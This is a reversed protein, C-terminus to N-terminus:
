SFLATSLNWDGDYTITLTTTTADPFTYVATLLKNDWNYTNVVSTTDDRHAETVQNNVITDVYFNRSQLLQLRFMSDVKSSSYTTETGPTVDNIRAWWSIHVPRQALLNFDEKSAYENHKHDKDAKDDIDKKIKEIEKKNENEKKVIDIKIDEVSELKKDLINSLWSIDDIEHGHWLDSKKNIKENLKDINDLIFSSIKNLQWQIERKDKFTLNEKHSHTELKSKLTDFYTNLEEIIEWRIEEEVQQEIYWIVEDRLKELWQEAFMNQITQLLWWLMDTESFNKNWVTKKIFDSITVWSYNTKSAKIKM